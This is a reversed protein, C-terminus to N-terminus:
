VGGRFTQIHTERPIQVNQVGYRMADMLHNFDDVPQNQTNGFRDKSWAYNGIETLFNVCRPHVIIEYNQIYQIGNNISDKGKVAGRAQIGYERLEDISKPEASDCIIRASGYGMSRIEGAIKKNTLGKKYLEDYVWIKRAEVDIYGIFLATPDNTYGFDLGHITQTNYLGQIEKLTFEQEHWNEYVLGEVIGWEGLGAVKYRRPNRIKMDEFLKRDANDLWENCQYTTTVALKETTNPTDFFRKKLWHKENWPNFILFVRKFYGAPVEGRISEDITDFISEQTIEYAEEFVVWCLIGHPVSISTLKLPDDCGRFLIKQGTPKYEIEMPSIRCNFFDDVGIRHIAWLCDAYCSDKITRETKRIYLANALPYELLHSIIWLAVTKSKKSARSGKIAVYRGRFNWVDAYGRGVLKQMSIPM